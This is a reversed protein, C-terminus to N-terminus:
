SDMMKKIKEYLYLIGVDNSKRAQAEAYDLAKKAELSSANIEERALYLSAFAKYDEMKNQSAISIAKLYLDRGQEISGKRFLLLGNTANWVVQEDIKNPNKFQNLVKEADPIKDQNILAFALNNKIMNDDPNSILTHKLVDESKQYDDFCTAYIFAALQAPRSSYPQDREWLETIELAKGWESSLYLSTANAEYACQVSSFKNIDTEIQPHHLWKSVWIIQALANDNPDEFSNSFLRKASKDDGAEFELTGLASTLESIAFSSFNDSNIIERATKIHNSTKNLLSAISIESALVWPDFNVIDSKRLIEYSKPSKGTHLYFRAASRLVYRNEPSLQTAIKIAVCAKEENGLITYNRALDVWAISNGPNESLVHKLRRINSRFEKVEINELCDESKKSSINDGSLVRNAMSILITSLGNSNKVVFDAAEKASSLSNAIIASSILEAAFPLEKNNEWEFEARKLFGIDKPKQNPKKALGLEGLNMTTKFDRWVPLVRRNDDKFGKIM